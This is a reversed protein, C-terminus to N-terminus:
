RTYFREMLTQGRELATSADTGKAVDAFTNLVFYNGAVQASAKSPAASYGPTRGLDLTQMFPYLPSDPLFAPSNLLAPGPPLLAGQHAILWQSYQARACWWQLFTAAVDINASRSAIGLSRSGLPLFTGAPGAPVPAIAIDGAIGPIPTMTAQLYAEPGAITMSIDGSVMAAVLGADDWTIGDPHFGASWASAFTSLAEQMAPSAFVIDRSDPAIESGGHGWMYANCFAPGAFPTQRLAQGAPKGTSESLSAALAVYDDWTEPFQAVPDSIGAEALLGPRFTVALPRAGIPISLWRDRVRTTRTVWEDYGGQEFALSPTYPSLDVLQEQYLFPELPQLEVIDRQEAGRLVREVRAPLDRLRTFSVSVNVGNSQGWQQALTVIFDDAGPVGTTGLVLSLTVAEDQGARAIHPAHGGLGTAVLSGQGIRKLFTRRSTRSEPPHSNQVAAAPM